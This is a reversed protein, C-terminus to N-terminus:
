GKRTSLSALSTLTGLFSEALPTEAVDGYAEAQALANALEDGSFTSLAELLELTVDALACGASAAAKPDSVDNVSDWAAVAEKVRILLPTAM